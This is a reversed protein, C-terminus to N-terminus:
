KARGKGGKIVRLWRSPGSGRMEGKGRAASMGRVVPPTPLPAPEPTSLAADVLEGISWVHDAVGVAMAPTCRITEHWRCWNYHAFQLAIAARHNALKKSFGNTLRTFRRSGMRTS